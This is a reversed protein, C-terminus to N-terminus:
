ATTAPTSISWDSVRVVGNFWAVYVRYATASVLGTLTLNTGGAGAQTAGITGTAAVIARAVMDDAGLPISAVRTVPITTTTPTGVTFQGAVPAALSGQQVNTGRKRYQAWKGM